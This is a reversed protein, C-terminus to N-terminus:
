GPRWCRLVTSLILVLGCVCPVYWSPVQTGVSVEKGWDWDRDLDWDLDLVVGTVLAQHGWRKVGVRM